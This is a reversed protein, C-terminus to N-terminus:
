GEDSQDKGYRQEKLRESYSKGESRVVPIEANAFFQSLKDAVRSGGSINDGALVFPNNDRIMEWSKDCFSNGAYNVVADYNLKHGLEELVDEFFVYSMNDLAEEDVIGLHVAILAM